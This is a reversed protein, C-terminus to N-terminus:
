DDASQRFGFWGRKPKAPAGPPALLLRQAQERWADRDARLDEIQQRLLEVEISPTELQESVHPALRKPPFVRFLEAPDIQYGAPTQEVYSMRGSSLAKSITAKSVGAARAAEGLTM